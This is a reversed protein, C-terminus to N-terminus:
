SLKLSYLTPSLSTVLSSVVPKPKAKEKTYLDIFKKVTDKQYNFCIEFDKQYKSYIPSRFRTSRYFEEMELSVDIFVLNLTELSEPLMSLMEQFDEETFGPSLPHHETIYLAIETCSDTLKTMKELIVCGDDTAYENFNTNSRIHAIDALGTKIRLSDVTPSYMIQNFNLPWNTRLLEDEITQVIHIDVHDTAWRSFDPRQQGYYCDYIDIKRIYPFSSFNIGELFHCEQFSISQCNQLLSLQFQNIECIHLFIKNAKLSSLIKCNQLQINDCGIENLAQAIKLDIYVNSLKVMTSSITSIFYIHAEGGLSKIIKSLHDQLDKKNTPPNKKMSLPLISKKEVSDPKVRPQSNIREYVSQLIQGYLKLVEQWQENDVILCPQSSVTQKFAEAKKLNAPYSHYSASIFEDATKYALKSDPVILTFGSNLLVDVLFWECPYSNEGPDDAIPFNVSVLIQPKWESGISKKFFPIKGLNDQIVDFNSTPQSTYVKGGTEALSHGLQNLLMKHLTPEILHRYHNLWARDLHKRFFKPNKGTRDIAKSSEKLAPTSEYIVGDVAAWAHAYGPTVQGKEDAWYGHVLHINAHIGLANRAAVCFILAGEVCMVGKSSLCFEFIKLIDGQSYIEGLQFMIERDSQKQRDLYYLYNKLWDSLEKLAKHRSARESSEKIKKLLGLMAKPLSTEKLDVFPKFDTVQPPKALDSPVVQYTLSEPPWNKEDIPKELFYYGLPSYHVNKLGERYIRHHAPMLLILRGQKDVDPNNLKISLSDPTLEEAFAKDKPFCYEEPLGGEFRILGANKILPLGFTDLAVQYQPLYLNKLAAKPNTSTVIAILNKGNKEDVFNLAGSTESIELNNKATLHTILRLVSASFSSSFLDKIAQSRALVAQVIFKKAGGDPTWKEWLTSVLRLVASDKLTDTIKKPISKKAGPYFQEVTKITASSCVSLVLKQFDIVSPDTSLIVTVDGIALIGTVECIVWYFITDWLVQNFYNEYDSDKDILPFPLDIRRNEISLSAQKIEKFCIGLQNEGLGQLYYFLAQSLITQSSVVALKPQKKWLLYAYALVGAELPTCGNIFLQGANLLSRSSECGFTRAFNHFQLLDAHARLPIGKLKLLEEPPISDLHYTLIKSSKPLIQRSRYRKDPPNMTAIVMLGPSEAHNVAYILAAIKKTTLLNMENCVMIENSNQVEDIEAFPGGNIVYFDKGPEGVLFELAKTILFSKGALTEGYVTMLTKGPMAKNKKLFYFYAQLYEVLAQM